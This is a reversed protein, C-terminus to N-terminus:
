ILHIVAWLATLSIAIWLIVGQLVPRFGVSKIVKKSLGAGILFLTITLGKKAAMVVWDSYLRVFPIYTFALMALIYFGIFWPINMKGSKNKFIMASVFSLPIIWLARALKVTTAIAPAIGSHNPDYIKDYTTAAGVVSSTDHIAIACWMGFQNPLLALWHGIVPFIILAISNLIFVIGLAVSMQQEEAEIVPGIAAIASGGCIATGSSVLYSTKKEINFLWGLLGGLVMTGVISAVTFLIGTKGAQLANNINMGFGLGVVSSKLLLNTAKKNLHIYPHGLTLGIVLGILLAVPPTIFPMLCLTIAFIFVIKSITHRTNQQSTNTTTMLQKSQAFNSKTKTNEIFLM